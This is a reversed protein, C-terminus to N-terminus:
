IKEQLLIVTKRLLNNEKEINSVKNKLEAIEQEDILNRQNVQYFKIWQSITQVTKGCLLALQEITLCKMQYLKAAEEKTLWEAKM